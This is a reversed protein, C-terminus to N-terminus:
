VEVYGDVPMTIGTVWSADGSALFVAARAIDEAQGLRGWPHLGEIYKNVEEVALFNKIMPTRTFGPNLANCHIRDKAYDVAVQRTIQVVSGKAACYSSTGPFGVLGLISSTNIIWGRDGSSHPEQAMMQATAYKCGLWVGRSNIRMTLDYTEDPTEHIRLTRPHNAEAAIGANNVMIDLRGYQSVAARVVNEVSPSDGTDTQVFIANDPTLTNIADHTPKGDHDPPPVTPPPSSTLIPKPAIPTSIHVHPTPRLPGKSSEVM